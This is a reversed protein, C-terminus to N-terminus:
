ILLWDILTKHFEKPHSIQPSHGLGPFLLLKSDPIKAAVEPGLLDYRGLAAAVEPPSWAAGIATKDKDGIILATRVKLDEFYPAVPTALVMDVIQAQNKVFNGRQSGHYINVSMNVWVDYAPKWEGVYYVRQQYSRVSEYNTAAETVSTQDISVYPVGKQIYDELGIANVLVLNDVTKPYQLSFRTALMGGMSHGIVTVNGIGLTNLLERTNWALQHLTFQYREPKSSKCFGVQDPAIVRYGKKSLVRITGEWTPACFNKGHLLVATKKNPRGTPKVDLFAMDLDQFQSRFSFVKVPWPYTFNSGNLDLPFPGDHISGNAQGSVLRSFTVASILCAFIHM